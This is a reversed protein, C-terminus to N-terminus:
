AQWLRAQGPRNGDRDPLLLDMTELYHSQCHFCWRLLEWLQCTVFISALSMGVFDAQITLLAEERYVRRLEDWMLIVVNPSIERHFITRDPLLLEVTELYHSQCHFCWRLLEWLQCTV